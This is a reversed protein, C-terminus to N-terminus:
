TWLYKTTKYLCWWRISFKIMIQHQNQADKDEQSWTQLSRIDQKSHWLVDEPPSHVMISAATFKVFCFNNCFNETIATSHDSLWDRQSLIQKYYVFIIYIESTYLFLKMLPISFFALWILWSVVLPFLLISSYKELEVVCVCFRLFINYVSHSKGLCQHIDPHQITIYQFISSFSLFM